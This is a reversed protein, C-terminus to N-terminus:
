GRAHSAGAAAQGQGGGPGSQLWVLWAALALFALNLFLTHDVAFRVMESSQCPRCSYRSILPM